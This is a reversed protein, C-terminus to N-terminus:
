LSGLPLDCLPQWRDDKGFRQYGRLATVDFAPFVALEARAEAEMRDLAEPSIGFRTVALTLHPTYEHGEHATPIAGALVNITTLHLSHMDPSDVTLYLVANGFRAPAGLRAAFPRLGALAPRLLDLLAGPADDWPFPPKVTIHPEVNHHPHGWRARFAEIAGLTPEPPTIAFFYSPM